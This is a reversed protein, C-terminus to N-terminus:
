GRRRKLGGRPKARAQRQEKPDAILPRYIEIRDGERVVAELEASKGFIGVRAPAGGIEPFRDPIGSREIVQRVTAGHEVELALLVQEEPRAYVVEVHILRPREADIGSEAM